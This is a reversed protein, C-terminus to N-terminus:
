RVGDLSAWEGSQIFAAWFYPHARGPRALIALKSRRLADGRGLGARLETYYSVMAERAIADTVPWLTMVLTETGALVFARRLGYVGEGNRVDGVGTDCASLTVLKTGRLDLGSAELATLIAASRADPLNAGALALGSRLLPNTPKGRRDDLFFGHAAIHLMRPAEARQLAAKTARGGSLITADPFLAKITRAEGSTAPLPAFYLAPRDAEVAGGRRSVPEGFLPDAVILPGSRSDRRVRMRLLDRGSTVYSIAYREVLFRDQEDVMAEFPVLNLDGDPSVILREVGGLAARLPRMVREDVSRALIRVDTRRPDRLAGRLSEVAVGIPAAPGLDFGLPPTSRRLVYAAYHPAGYAEANREARPNFPRFVTFEVLAADAPIEGQVAEVTVAQMEARLAANRASLEAELREKRAELAHITQPMAEAPRVSTAVVAARALQATTAKLQDLLDLDIPDLARRRGIAVADIMADQVRGKRQLLVLAALAAARPDDPATLLHLSITRDTREAVSDVFLLKERESGIAVNLELEKELIADARRQYAIAGDIDGAGAYTRAINGVTVLTAERYPGAAREWIELARFQTALARATDGTARYINAMNVLLQAVDPHGDGVLPARIALAAAYYGLASAYQKRERAIIGRYQLPTAVQYGDAGVVDTAIALARAYLEDAQALDQRRRYLEGLADLLDVYVLSHTDHMREAIALGGRIAAEQGDADGSDARLAARTLLTDVYWRNDAGLGREIAAAAEALLAEAKARQGMNQLLAALRSRVVGIKPDHPTLCREMIGIAREFLAGARADDPLRRYVEALEAAVDATEVADAGHEREVTALAKELAAQAEGFRGAVFHQAGERRLRRSRQLAADRADSPHMATIRIEYSGGGGTGPAIRVAVHYAGAAAAVIGVHEEGRPRIDDQFEAVEDGQADFTEVVVDVGRQEVVLHACDGADLRIAFRQEEGAAITRAIPTGPALVAVGADASTRARPSAILVVIGAGLLARRRARATM